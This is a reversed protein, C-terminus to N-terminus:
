VRRSITKSYGSYVRKGNVIKYAKMKWYYRKGKKLSKDQLSSYKSNVTNIRKFSGNKNPASRYLM